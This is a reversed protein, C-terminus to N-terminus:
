HDNKTIIEFFDNDPEPVSIKFSSTIQVVPDALELGNFNNEKARCIVEELSMSHQPSYKASSQNCSGQFAQLKSKSPDILTESNKTTGYKNDHNDYKNLIGSLNRVTATMTKLSSPNDHLETNQTTSSTASEINDNEKWDYLSIQPSSYGKKISSNYSSSLLKHIKRGDECRRHNQKNNTITIYSSCFVSTKWTKLNPLSKRRNFYFCYSALEFHPCYLLENTLIM